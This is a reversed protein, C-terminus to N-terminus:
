KLMSQLLNSTYEDNGLYFVYKRSSSGYGFFTAFLIVEDGPAPEEDVWGMEIAHDVVIRYQQDWQGPPNDYQSKLRVLWARQPTAESPETIEEVVCPLFYVGGPTFKDDNLSSEIGEKMTTTSHMYEATTGIPFIPYNKKLFIVFDAPPISYDKVSDIAKMWELTTTNILSRVRENGFIMNIQNLEEIDLYYDVYDEDYSGYFRFAISDFREIDNTSYSHLNSLPISFSEYYTGGSTRDRRVNSVDHNIRAEKNVVATYKKIRIWENMPFYFKLQFGGKQDVIVCQDDATANKHDGFWSINYDDFLDYESNMEYQFQKGQEALSILKGEWEDNVLLPHEERLKKVAEIFGDFGEDRLAVMLASQQYRYQSGSAFAPSSYLILMFLCVIACLIRKM